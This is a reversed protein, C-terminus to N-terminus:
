DIINGLNYAFEAVTDIDKVPVIEEDVEVLMKDLAALLRRREKHSMKIKYKHRAQFEM